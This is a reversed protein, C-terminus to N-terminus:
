QERNKMITITKREVRMEADHRQCEYLWEKFDELNVNRAFILNEGAIKGDEDTKKTFPKKSFIIYLTNVIHRKDTLVKQILNYKEEEDSADEKSFFVYQRNRRIQYIGEKQEQYPLMCYARGEDEDTLYVALYGDAPAKFMLCIRDNHCFRDDENELKNGNRLVHYEFNVGAMEIERAKGEVYVTFVMFGEDTMSRSRVEEKETKLWEARLMTGGRQRFYVSEQNNDKSTIYETEGDVREGFVERLAEQRAHLLAKQLAQKPSEDMNDSVYTYEASVRKTKQAVSTVAFCLTFGILLLTRKM